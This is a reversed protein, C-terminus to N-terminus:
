EKSTKIASAPSSPKLFVTWRRAACLSVSDRDALTILADRRLHPSREDAAIAILLDTARASTAGFGREDHLRTLAMVDFRPQYSNKDQHSHAIPDLLNFLEDVSVNGEWSFMLLYRIAWYRTNDHQSEDRVINILDPIAGPGHHEVKEDILESYSGLGPMTRWGVRLRALREKWAVKEIEQAQPINRHKDSAQVPM